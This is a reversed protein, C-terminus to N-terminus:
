RSSVSSAPATILHSLSRPASKSTVSSLVTTRRSAAAPRDPRRSGSGSAKTLAPRVIDQRAWYDLQRYTIGAIEATRKSNYGQQNM